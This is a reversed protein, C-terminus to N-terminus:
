EESTGLDKLLKNIHAGHEISTDAFFSLAPSHRLDLRHGIERRIFGSAHKIADITEAKQADEALMSVFVKAVSLDQAVEVRTVSVLASSVRPDKLERLIASIEKKLEEAIRDYRHSM